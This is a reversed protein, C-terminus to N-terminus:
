DDDGDGDHGGDHGSDDDTTTATTATTATSTSSGSALGTRPTLRGVPDSSAGGVGLLYLNAAIGAVAIAAALAVGAALKSWLPM